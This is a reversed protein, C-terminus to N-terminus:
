KTNLTLYTHILRFYPLTKHVLGENSKDNANTFLPLWNERDITEVDVAYGHNQSTM